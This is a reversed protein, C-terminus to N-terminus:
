HPSRYLVVCAAPSLRITMSLETQTYIYLYFNNFTDLPAYFLLLCLTSIGSLLHSRPSPFAQANRPM